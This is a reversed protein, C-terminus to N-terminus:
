YFLILSELSVKLTIIAIAIGYFNGLVLTLIFFYVCFVSFMYRWILYYIVNQNKFWNCNPRKLGLPCNMTLRRKFLTIEIVNIGRQKLTTQGYHAWQSYAM